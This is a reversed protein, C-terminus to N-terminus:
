RRPFVYREHWFNPVSKDGRHFSAIVM